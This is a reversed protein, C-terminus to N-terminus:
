CVPVQIALLTITEVIKTFPSFSFARLYLCLFKLHSILVLRIVNCSCKATVAAIRTNISLKMVENQFMDVSLFHSAAEGGLM